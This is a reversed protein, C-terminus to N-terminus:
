VFVVRKLNPIKKITRQVGLVKVTDVRCRASTCMAVVVGTKEFERRWMEGAPEHCADCRFHPEVTIKIGKRDEPNNTLGKGRAGVKVLLNTAQREQTIGSFRMVATLRARTVGIVDAVADVVTDFGFFAGGARQETQVVVSASDRQTSVTIVVSTRDQSFTLKVTARPSEADYARGDLYAARAAAHERAHHEDTKDVFARIDSFPEVPVGLLVSPETLAKISVRQTSDM